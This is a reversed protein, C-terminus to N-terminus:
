NIMQLPLSIFAELLGFLRISLNQEFVLEPYM